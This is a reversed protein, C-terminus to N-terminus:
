PLPEKSRTEDHSNSDTCLVSSDWNVRSLNRRVTNATGQNHEPLQPDDNTLQVMQTTSSINNVLRCTDEETETGINDDLISSSDRPTQLKTRSEDWGKDEHDADEKAWLIHFEVFETMHLM